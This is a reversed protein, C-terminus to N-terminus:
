ELFETSIKVLTSSVDEREFVIEKVNEAVLLGNNVGCSLTENSKYKTIKCQFVQNNIMSLILINVAGAFVVDQGAILHSKLVFDRINGYVANGPAPSKFSFYPSMYNYKTAYLNNTSSTQVACSNSYAVSKMHALFAPKKPFTTMDGDTNSRLFAPIYFLVLGKSEWLHNLEQRLYCPNFFADDPNIDNGLLREYKYNFLEM